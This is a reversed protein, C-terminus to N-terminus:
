ENSGIYVDMTSIDDMNFAQWYVHPKLEDHVQMYAEYRTSALVNERIDVEVQAADKVIVTYYQRKAM